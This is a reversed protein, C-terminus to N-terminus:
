NSHIKYKYIGDYQFVVFESPSTWYSSGLQRTSQVLRMTNKPINVEYYGDKSKNVFDSFRLYVYIKDEFESLGDIFFIDKKVNFNDQFLLQHNRFIQLTNYFPYQFYNTITFKTERNYFYVYNESSNYPLEIFLRSPEDFYSNGYWINDTRKNFAYFYSPTEAQTNTVVDYTVYAAQIGGTPKGFLVYNHVVSSMTSYNQSMYSIRVFQKNNTDYRCVDATDSGAQYNNLVTKVILENASVASIESVGFLSTKPKFNEDVIAVVNSNVDMKKLVYKSPYSFYEIYFITSRDPSVSKDIIISNPSYDTIKSIEFGSVFEHQYNPAIFQFVTDNDAMRLNFILGIPKFLDPYTISAATKIYGDITIRNFTGIISDTEADILVDGNIFNNNELVVTFKTNSESLFYYDLNSIQKVPNEYSPSISSINDESCGLIFNLISLFLIVKKM